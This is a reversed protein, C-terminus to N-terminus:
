IKFGMVLVDDIQSTNGIWNDFRTEVFEQQNFMNTSQAELIMDRFPQSYFKKGKDGGIQDMFGDTFLILRDNKELQLQSSTFSRSSDQYGIPEIDARIEFLKFVDNSCKAKLVNEIGNITIALGNPTKSKERIIYLQNNVAAFNLSTKNENIICFSLDMSDSTDQHFATIVEQSLRNLIEGADTINTGSTVKQLLSHTILSMFAGPIGHGTCDIAAIYHHKNENHYWFFDGSVIDKPKYFIFHENFAEGIKEKSPLIAKQIRRAYNISNTIDQSKKDIVKNQEDLMQNQEEITKNKFRLQANKKMKDKYGRYLLLLAILILILSLTITGIIWNRKELDSQSSRLELDGIATEKILLEIQHSKKKTDYKAEIEAINRTNDKRRMTDKILSYKKYYLLASEYDRSEEYIESLDKYILVIEQKAGLEEAYELGKFLMFICKQSNEQSKYIQAISRYAIALRKKDGKNLYITLAKNCHTLASSFEKKERLVIGINLLCSAVGHTDNLQSRIILSKQLNSIALDYKEQIVFVEGINNHAVAIGEFDNLNEFIIRAREFYEITKDLNVMYYYISGINNLSGAIGISDNLSELIELSQHAYDLALEYKSFVFYNVVSLNNLSEAKGKLNNTKIALSLGKTGYKVAEDADISKYEWCLENLAKIRQSDNVAKFLNIKYKEIETEAHLAFHGSCIILVILWIQNITKIFISLYRQM